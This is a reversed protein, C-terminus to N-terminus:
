TVIIADEYLSFLDKIHTPVKDRGDEFNESKKFNPLVKNKNGLPHYLELIALRYYYRDANEGLKTIYFMLEKRTEYYNLGASGAGATQGSKLAQKLKINAAQAQLVPLSNEDTQEPTQKPPINSSSKDIVLTFFFISSLLTIIAASIIWRRRTKLQRIKKEHIKEFPKRVEKKTVDKIKYSLYFDFAFKKDNEIERKLLELEAESLESNMYKDLLHSKEEYNM